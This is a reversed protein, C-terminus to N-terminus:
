DNVIGRFSLGNTKDLIQGVHRMYRNMGARQRNVFINHWINDVNFCVHHIGSGRKELFNAITTEPSLPEVLEIKYTELKFIAVKLQMEKMEIIEPEGLQLIDRYIKVSEDISKVVIGIHNLSKLM